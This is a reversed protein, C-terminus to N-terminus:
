SSFCLMEVCKEVPTSFSASFFWNGTLEKKLENIESAFIPDTQTRALMNNYSTMVTAHDRNFLKAINPFSMETIERILFIAIHRPSAIEKNRKPGVLDEKSVDYHKEM